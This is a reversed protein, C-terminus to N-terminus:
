DDMQEYIARQIKANLTQMTDKDSIEFYSGFDKLDTDNSTISSLYVSVPEDESTREEYVSKITAKAVFVSVDECKIKQTRDEILM